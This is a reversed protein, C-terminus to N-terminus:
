FGRYTGFGANSYRRQDTPNSLSDTSTSAKLWPFENEIESKLFIFALNSINKDKSHYVTMMKQVKESDLNLALDYRAGCNWIEKTKNM